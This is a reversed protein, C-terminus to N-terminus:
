VLMGIQSHWCQTTHWGQNFLCGSQISGGFLWHCMLQMSKDGIDRCTFRLGESLQLIRHASASSVINVSHARGFEYASVRIGLTIINPSPSKPLYNSNSSTILTPGEHCPLHRYLFLYEVLSVVQKGWAETVLSDAQLAPSCTWDRLWSTGQLLFHCNGVGTNKGPSKWLCLLRIHWLGRPWFSNSLVSYSASVWWWLVLAREWGIGTSECLLFTM